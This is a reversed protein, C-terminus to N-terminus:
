YIHVSERNFANCPYSQLNHYIDLAEIMDAGICAIQLLSTHAYFHHEYAHSRIWFGFAQASSKFLVVVTTVATLTTYM